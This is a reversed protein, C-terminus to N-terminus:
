SVILRTLLLLFELFFLVNKVKMDPERTNKPSVFKPLRISCRLFKSLKILPSFEDSGHFFKNSKKLLFESDMPNIVYITEKSRMISM